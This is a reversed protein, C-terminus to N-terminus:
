VEISFFTIRLDHNETLFEPLHTLASLLCERDIGRHCANM